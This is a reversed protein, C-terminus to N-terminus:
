FTLLLLPRVTCPSSCGSSTAELSGTTDAGRNAVPGPRSLFDQCQASSSLPCNPGWAGEHTMMGGSLTMTGELWVKGGGM